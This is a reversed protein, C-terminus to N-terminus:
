LTVFTAFLISIVQFIRWPKSYKDLRDICKWICVTSYQITVEIDKLSQLPRYGKQECHMNKPLSSDRGSSMGPVRQSQQFNKPSRGSFGADTLRGEGTFKGAPLQDWDM